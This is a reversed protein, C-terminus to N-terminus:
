KKAEEIARTVVLIGTWFVCAAVFFTFTDPAVDVFAAAVSLVVTLILWMWLQFAAQRVASV